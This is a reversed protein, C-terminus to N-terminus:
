NRVKVLDAALLEHLHEDLDRKAEAGDVEFDNVIRDCLDQVDSDLHDWIYEGIGHLVYISRMDALRNRVPILFVEGAIKRKVVDKNREYIM